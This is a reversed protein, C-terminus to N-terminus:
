RKWLQCFGSTKPRHTEPDIVPEGNRDLVMLEGYAYLLDARPLATDGGGGPPAVTAEEPGAPLTETPVGEVPGSPIGVGSVALAAGARLAAAVLVVITPALRTM